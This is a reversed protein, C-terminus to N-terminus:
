AMEIEDVDVKAILAVIKNYDGMKKFEFSFNHTKIKKDQLMHIDRGDFNTVKIKLEQVRNELGVQKLKELEEEDIVTLNAYSTGKFEGVNVSRILYSEPLDVAKAAKLEEFFENETIEGLNIM